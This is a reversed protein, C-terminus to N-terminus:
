TGDGEEKVLKELREKEAELAEDSMEEVIEKYTKYYRDLLLKVASVDPAYHKTTVKKKSLIIDGDEGSTYEKVIENAEYGVAKKLLANKIMNEQEMAEGKSCARNYIHSFGMKLKSQWINKIKTM